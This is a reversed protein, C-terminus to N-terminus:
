ADPRRTWVSRDTVALGTAEVEPRVRHARLARPDIREIGGTCTRSCGCAARVPPSPTASTGASRYAPSVRGTRADLQTLRSRDSGSPQSENAVVWVTRRRRRDGDADRRVPHRARVSRTPRISRRSAARTTRSGCRARRGRGRRAAPRRHHGYSSRPTRRIAASARDHATGRRGALLASGDGRRWCPTAPSWARPHLPRAARAGRGAQQQRAAAEVLDQRLGTIFDENMAWDGQALDRPRALCAPAGGGGVHPARGALEGYPREDIVHAVVLRRQEPPLEDLVSRASDDGLM